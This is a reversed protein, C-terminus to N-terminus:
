LVINFLYAVAIIGVTAVGTFVGILRPKLVERLIIAEPASIAAVAMMFALVTGFANGSNPAGRSSGFRGKGINRSTRVDQM